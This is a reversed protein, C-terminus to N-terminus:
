AASLEALRVVLQAQTPTLPQVDFAFRSSSALLGRLGRAPLGLAAAIDTGLMRGGNAALLGEAALHTRERHQALLANRCYPAPPTM